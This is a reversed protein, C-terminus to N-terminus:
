ERSWNQTQDADLYQAPVAGRLLVSRLQDAASSGAQPLQADTAVLVMNGGSRGQLTGADSIM